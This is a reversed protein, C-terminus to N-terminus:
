VSKRDIDRRGIIIKGDAFRFSHTAFIGIHSQKSICIEKKKGVLILRANVGANEPNFHVFCTVKDNEDFEHIFLENDDGKWIPWLFSPGDSVAPLFAHIRYNNAKQEISTKLQYTM